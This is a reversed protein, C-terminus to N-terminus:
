PESFGPVALVHDCSEEIRDAGPSAQLGRSRISKKTILGIYQHIQDSRTRADGAARGARAAAYYLPAIIALCVIWSVDAGGLRNAMPGAYAPTSVFPAELAIGAVLCGCAVWNVRRYRGGDPRLFEAVDYHGARILYYDVLNIATWPVLVYMLLQVVNTTAILFGGSAAVAALAAPATIVVVLAGRGGISVTPRFPLTRWRPILSQGVTILSLTGGYVNIASALALCITFVGIVLISLGHALTTLGGIVDSSQVGIVAGLLMSLISGASTGAYTALFARKPSTAAPLYRSYDAVYPVYSIQWLAGLSATSVFGAASARGAEWFGPALHGAGLIWVVALVLVVGGLWTMVRAYSHMFDYGLFATLASAAAVAVISGTVSIHSSLAGLSQGALVLNVALFGASVLAVCAAVCAAGWAGFQARTQVVQPVGLRAGQASHLAVVLAGILNGAVIALAALVFPQGYAATALAGNVVALMTINPGFWFTFLDGADGYREDDPVRSLSRDEVIPLVDLLSTLAPM